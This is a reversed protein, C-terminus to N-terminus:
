DRLPDYSPLELDYLPYEGSSGQSASGPPSNQSGPRAQSNTNTTTSINQTGRFYETNDATGAWSEQVPSVPMDDDLFTNSLSTQTLGSNATPQNTRVGTNTQSNRNQGQLDPFLDAPLTPMTLYGVLATDNLGLTSERLPEYAVRTNSGCMDCYEVPQTGSLFPLTVGQNCAPTRLLGSKTCVTIDVVGSAPYVFDRRPLGQHIVRM